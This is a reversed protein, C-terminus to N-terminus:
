YNKNKVLGNKIEMIEDAMNALEINHTVILFTKKFEKKLFFFLQHLNDANKKDLNGSPEDAFIIEPDNILARAISLRQKEGGSLEDIKSNVHKYINLEKLLNIATDQINKRNKKRNILGPLSVNELVTLEPLFEPNQFIFGINENRVYSLNEDSM